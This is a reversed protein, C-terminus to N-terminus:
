RSSAAVQVVRPLVVDLTGAPLRAVPKGNVQIDVNAAAGFRFWLLRSSFRATQGRPLVAEYILTGLASGRRASVWSNGRAATITVTANVRGARAIPRASPSAPAMGRPGTSGAAPAAEPVATMFGGFALIAFVVVAATVVVLATAGVRKLATAGLSRPAVPPFHRGIALKRGILGLALVLGLGVALRVLAGGGVGSGSGSSDAALAAPQRAAVVTVRPRVPKPKAVRKPAVERRTVGARPKPRPRATRPTPVQVQRPQMSSRPAITAPRARVVPRAAPPARRTAPPAARAPRAPQARPAPKPDPRVTPPPPTPEPAVTVPPPEAPPEPAEEALAAPALAGLGAVAVWLAALKAGRRHGLVHPARV